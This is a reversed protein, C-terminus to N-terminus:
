LFYHYKEENELQYKISIGKIQSANIIGGASERDSLGHGSCVMLARPFLCAYLFKTWPSM